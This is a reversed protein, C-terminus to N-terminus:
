KVVCYLKGVSNWCEFWFFRPSCSVVISLVVLSNNITSKNKQTCLKALPLPTNGRQFTLYPLSDSQFTIMKLFVSQSQESLQQFNYLITIKSEVSNLQNKSRYLEWHAWEIQNSINRRKSRNVWVAEVRKNEM